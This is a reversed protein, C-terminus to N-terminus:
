RRRRFYDDSYRRKCSISLHPVGSFAARRGAVVQALLGSKYTFWPIEALVQGTDGAIARRTWNTFYPGEEKLDTYQIKTTSEAVALQRMHTANECKDLFVMYGAGTEITVLAPLLAFIVWPLACKTRKGIWYALPLGFLLYLFGYFEALGGWRTSDFYVIEGM